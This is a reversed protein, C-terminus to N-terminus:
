SWDLSAGDCSLISSMVVAAHAGAEVVTRKGTVNADWKNLHGREKQTLRSNKKHYQRIRNISYHPSQSKLERQLSYLSKLCCEYFIFSLKMFLEIVLGHCGDQPPAVQPLVSNFPSSHLWMVVNGKKHYLVSTRVDFGRGRLWLSIDDNNNINNISNMICSWWFISYETQIPM